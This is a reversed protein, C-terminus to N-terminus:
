RPLTTLTVYSNACPTQPPTEATVDGAAFAMMNNWARLTERRWQYLQL